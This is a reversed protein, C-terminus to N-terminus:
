ALWELDSGHPHALGLLESKRCGDDFTTRVLQFRLRDRSSAMADFESICGPAENSIWVIERMRSHRVLLEVFADREGPPLYRFVASHFIVLSAEDPADTLLVPLDDALDGSRVPPTHIRAFGMAAELRERRDPQDAWICALLWRADDPDKLDLPNLDLGHKWAIVPFEAPVPVPVKGIPKCRLVVASAEDGLRSGGYNYLFGDLLLCLGASAGVDIM